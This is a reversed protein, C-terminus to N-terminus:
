MEPLPVNWSGCNLDVPAGLSPILRVIAGNYESPSLMKCSKNHELHILGKCAMRPTVPEHNSANPITWMTFPAKLVKRGDYLVQFNQHPNASIVNAPRGGTTFRNQDHAYQSHTGNHQTRDTHVQRFGAFGPLTERRNNSPKPQNQQPTQALKRSLSQRVHSLDCIRTRNRGGHIWRSVLKQRENEYPSFM